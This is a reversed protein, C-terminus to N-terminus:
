TREDFLLEAALGRVGHERLTKQPHGLVAGRRSVNRRGPGGPSHPLVGVPVDTRLRMCHVADAITVAILETSGDLLQLLEPADRSFCGTALDGPESGRSTRFRERM